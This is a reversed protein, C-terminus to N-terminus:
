QPRPDSSRAEPAPLSPGTPAAAALPALDLVRVIGDWGATALRRDDPSLAMAALRDEHAPLTALLRGDAEWVRLVGDEGGSALRGDALWTLDTAPSPQTWSAPVPTLVTIRDLTSWALREGRIAVAEAPVTTLQVAPGTPGLRSVSAETALAVTMGDVDLSLDRVIPGVHRTSSSGDPAFAIIAEGYTVGLVTGDALAVVRRFRNGHDQVPELRGDPRLRQVGDAGMASIFLGGDPTATLTKVVRDQWQWTADPAAGTPDILHLRGGSGGVALRGDLLWAITALGHPSRWARPPPHDPLTLRTWTSGDIRSLRGEPDLTAAAPGPALDLRVEGTRADLLRLRGKNGVVLLADGAPTPVVRRLPEGLVAPRSPADLRVLEGRHSATWVAEGARVLLDYTVDSPPFHVEARGDPEVRYVAGDHCAVWTPTGALASSAPTCPLAPLDADFLRGDDHSLRVLGEPSVFDGPRADYARVEGTEPDHRRLHRFNDLLVLDPGDTRASIVRYGPRWTGGDPRVVLEQGDDRCIAVRGDGPLLWRACPPLTTTELPVPDPQGATALLVGLAQPDPGWDLAQRALQEAVFDDGAQWASLAQQAQARALSAVARAEADVALDRERRLAEAHLVAQVFLSTAAIAGLGLPWRWARVLRVLLEAPRYAHATVRRGDEWALLDDAFAAADAYRRDPDPDTARAAIAALEPPPAEGATLRLLAGLSWVDGRPDPLGGAAQEPGRFGPTGVGRPASPDRVDAAVGWDVVAVDGLPAVLVNSPSLDRHVIGRQHAHAVAEAAARVARLAVTREGAAVVEGLPRGRVLRMVFFTRGDEDEGLDHIAAIGPHDLRATLTAERRLLREAASGPGGAPVKLAVNRQLWADWGLHVTGMAGEGLAGLRAYRQGAPRPPADPLDALGETGVASSGTPFPADRSADDDHRSRGPSAIPPEKTAQAVAYSGGM